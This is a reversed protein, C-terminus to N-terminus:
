KAGGQRGLGVEWRELGLQAFPFALRFASVRAWAGEAVVGRGV